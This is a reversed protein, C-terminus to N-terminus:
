EVVSFISGFENIHLGLEQGLPYIPGLVIWNLLEKWWLKQYSLRVEILYAKNIFSLDPRNSM